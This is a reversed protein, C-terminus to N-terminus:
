RQRFKRDDVWIDIEGKRKILMVGYGNDLIKNVVRYMGKRPIEQGDKYGVKKEDANVWYHITVKM